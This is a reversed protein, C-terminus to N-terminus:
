RDGSTDASASNVFRRAHMFFQLYRPEIGEEPRMVIFEGSAVGEFDAVVVKNLYPRLRGYLVDNPYFKNGASKMSRFEGMTEIRLSNSPVDDMGVFHFTSNRDPPAKEGRLSVLDRLSAWVYGGRPCSGRDMAIFNSQCENRSRGATMAPSTGAM